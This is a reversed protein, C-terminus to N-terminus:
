KTHHSSDIASESIMTQTGASDQFIESNPISDKAEEDEEFLADQDFEDLQSRYFCSVKHDDPINQAFEIEDNELLEKM